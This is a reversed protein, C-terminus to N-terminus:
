APNAAFRAAADSAMRETCWRAYSAGLYRGLLRGAGKRPLEYDIFVRLRSGQGETSLEFGLRYQGVLLLHADVTEWAKRSPPERETVVEELSLALGAIRGDMRVRSGVARGHQEDTGIIMKSGVMMASRKTMHSSLNNFDDLYAFAVEPSAGLTVTTEHHLPFRTM